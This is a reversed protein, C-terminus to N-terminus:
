KGNHHCFPTEKGSVDTEEVYYIVVFLVKTTQYLVAAVSSWFLNNSVVLDIIGILVIHGIM